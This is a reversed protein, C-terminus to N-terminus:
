CCLVDNVIAETELRMDKTDTGEFGNLDSSDEFGSM